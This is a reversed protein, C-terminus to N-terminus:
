EPPYASPQLSNPFVPIRSMKFGHKTRSDAREGGFHTLQAKRVGEAKPRFLKLRVVHTTVFQKINTEYMIFIKYRGTPLFYYYRLGTRDLFLNLISVSINIKWHRTNGSNRWQRTNHLLYPLDNNLPKWSNSRNRNAIISWFGSIMNLLFTEGLVKKIPSLDWSITAWALGPWNTIIRIPGEESGSRLRGKEM